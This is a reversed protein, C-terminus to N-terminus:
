DDTNFARGAVANWGWQRLLNATVRVASVRMPLDVGTMNVSTLELAAFQEFTSSRDSWDALDPMSVRGRVVVSETTGRAQISRSERSAVYVLDSRDAVQIFRWVLDIASYVITTAAIAVAMTLVVVTTTVPQRALARLAQRMM